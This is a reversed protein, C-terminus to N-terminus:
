RLWNRTRDGLWNSERRRVPPPAPTPAAPPPAEAAVVEPEVATAREVSPAFQVLRPGGRGVFAAYAYVLCDLAETRAGATKPRYGRVRRGKV